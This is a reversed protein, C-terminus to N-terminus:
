RATSREQASQNSIVSRERLIDVGRTDDVRAYGHVLLDRFRATDHLDASTSRDLLSEDALM